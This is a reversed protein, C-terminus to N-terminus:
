QIMAAEFMKYENVASPHNLSINKLDEVGQDLVSLSFILSNMVVYNMTVLGLDEQQTFQM